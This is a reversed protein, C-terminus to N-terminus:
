QTLEQISIQGRGQKKARYCAQDALKFLQEFPPLTNQSYAIGISAGLTAAPHDDQEFHNITTQIKDAVALVDELEDSQILIMFEDGGFRSALDSKRISARIIDSVKLLAQDGADHGFNDNVQKFHDLDIFLLATVPPRDSSRHNRAALEGYKNRFEERNLLPVLSDHTARYNLSYSMNINDLMTDRTQRAARYMVVALLLVMIAVANHVDTSELLSRFILPIASPILFLRYTVLDVGHTGVAAACSGGVLFIVLAQYLYHEPSFFFVCLVGFHSGSLLTLFRYIDLWKQSSFNTNGNRYVILLSLRVLNIVFGIACWIKINPGPYADLLLYTVLSINILNGFIAGLANSFLVAVVQSQQWETKENEFHQHDTSSHQM